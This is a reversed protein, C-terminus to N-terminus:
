MSPPGKPERGVAPEARPAGVRVRQRGACAHRARQLRAASHDGEGHARQQCEHQSSLPEGIIHVEHRRVKVRYVRLVLRHQQVAELTRARRPPCSRRCLPTHRRWTAAIIHM